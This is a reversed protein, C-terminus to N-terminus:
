RRGLWDVRSAAMAEGHRQWLKPTCAIIDFTLKLFQDPQAISDNAASGFLCLEDDLAFHRM